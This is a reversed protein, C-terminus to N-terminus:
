DGRPWEWHEGGDMAQKCPSCHTLPDQHKKGCAPCIRDLRPLNMGARYSDTADAILSGILDRKDM